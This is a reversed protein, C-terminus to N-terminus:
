RNLFSLAFRYEVFQKNGNEKVWKLFPVAETRKGSLFLDIGIYANAETKKDGDTAKLLFQERTIKGKLYRAIDASWANNDTKEIIETLAFDAEVSKNIMKNGIWIMLLVYTFHTDSPGAIKLFENADSIAKEAQLQNLEAEAKMAWAPAENTKIILGKAFAESAFAYNMLRLEVEGLTFLGIAENPKLEVVRRFHIVSESFAEKKYYAGALMGRMSYDDPFVKIGRELVKEMEDMKKEMYYLRVLTQYSVLNRPNLELSKEYVSIAMDLHGLREEVVGLYTYAAFNSRDLEVAKYAAIRAEDFKSLQFYGYSLAGYVNSDKPNLEVLKKYVSVGEEIKKALLLSSGLMLAVHKNAPDKELIKSYDTAAEEYKGAEQLKNAEEIQQAISASAGQQFFLLFSLIVMLM